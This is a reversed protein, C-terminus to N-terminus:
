FSIVPSEFSVADPSPIEKIHRREPDLSLARSISLRARAEDGTHRYVLALLFHPLPDDPKLRAFTHAERFAKRVNGSALDAQVCSMNLKFYIRWSAESIPEGPTTNFAYAFILVGLWVGAPAALRNRRLEHWTWVIAYAACVIFCAVAPLRYRDTVFFLVVWLINAITFLTVPLTARGRTFLLLFLGAVGIPVVFGFRFFAFQLVPTTREVLYINTNQPWEYSTFFIFTKLAQKKWFAASWPSLLNGEPYFFLGISDASNGIRWNVPGNTCIPVMQGSVAFNRLTVPLIVAGSTLVILACAALPPAVTGRLGPWMRRREPHVMLCLLLFPLFLAITPKALAALGLLVGAAAWKRRSPIEICWLFCALFAMYLFTIFGDSLVTGSYVIFSKYFSAIFAAILSAGNGAVRRAVRAILFCTGVDLLLQVLCAAFVRAGTLSYILALFYPYLPAMYFPKGDVYWPHKLIELAWLHFTLQDHKQMLAPNFFVTDKFSILFVIRLLTGAALTAALVRWYTRSTM